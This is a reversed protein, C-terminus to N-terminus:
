PLSRQDVSSETLLERSAQLTWHDKTPSQSMNNTTHGGTKGNKKRISKKLLDQAKEKGAVKAKAKEKREEKGIKEKVKETEKGATRQQTDTSEASAVLETFNDKAQDQEAGTDTRAQAVM